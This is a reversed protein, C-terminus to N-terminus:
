GSITSSYSWWPNHFVDITYQSEINVSLLQLNQPLKNIGHPFNNLELELTTLESPLSDLNHTLTTRYIVLKLLSQPLTDLQHQYIPGEDLIICKLSQYNM